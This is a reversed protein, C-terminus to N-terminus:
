SYLRGYQDYREWTDTTRWLGYGMFLGLWGSHGSGATTARGRGQTYQPLPTDQIGPWGRGAPLALSSLALAETPPQALCPPPYQRAIVGSGGLLGSLPAEEM